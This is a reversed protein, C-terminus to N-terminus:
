ALKFMMRSDIGWTLVATGIEVVELCGYIADSQGIKRMAKSDFDLNLMATNVAIIDQDTAAAGSLPGTARIQIAQWYLWGDWEQETIPTPVSAAGAVVAAETAVGIGFAGTYGDGTATASKLFAQMRGRTRVLTLGDVLPVLAATVIIAVSSSIETQIAVQGVGPEWSNKCRPYPLSARGRSFGRQTPM